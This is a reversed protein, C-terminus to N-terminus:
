QLNKDQMIAQLIQPISMCEPINTTTQIADVKIDMGHIEADKNETHNYRSLWDTIFLELGLKYLIRVWFQYIRLLICQIRQSMTAVDKKFIAVLSKHDTIISVERVLCYYHFRELAHLIGLEERIISSYRQGASTLGKSAFAIPRLITNDPATNRPCTM